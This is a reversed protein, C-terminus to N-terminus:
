APAPNGGSGHLAGSKGPIRNEPHGRYSRVGQPHFSSRPIRQAALILYDDPDLLRDQLFERYKRYILELDQLKQSLFPPHSAQGMSLTKLDEPSIDYASFESFARIVEDRFGPYDVLPAYVKLDDRHEWLISQVAMSRGVPTIFPRTVGGVEDLVKLCLRRFGLVHLNMFGRIRGDELIAKEMQFTAQDPVIILVPPKSLIDFPGAEPGQSASGDRLLGEIVSDIIYQTKGSGAPGIIFRLGM